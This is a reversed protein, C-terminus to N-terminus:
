LGYTVPELGTGGVVKFPPPFISPLDDAPLPIGGVVKFPPPFISPLDDAPLPIGGVVKFHHRSPQLIPYGEWHKLLYAYCFDPAYNLQNSRRGTL